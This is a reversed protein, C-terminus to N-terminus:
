VRPMLPLDYGHALILRARHAYGTFTNVQEAGIPLMEVPYRGLLTGNAYTTASAKIDTLSPLDFTHGEAPLPGKDFPHHPSLPAHPM